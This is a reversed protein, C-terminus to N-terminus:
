NHVDFNRRGILKKTLTKLNVAKTKKSPMVVSYIEDLFKFGLCFIIIMSIIVIFMDNGEKRKCIYKLM